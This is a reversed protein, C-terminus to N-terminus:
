PDDPASLKPLSVSPVAGITLLFSLKLPFLPVVETFAAWASKPPALGFEEEKDDEDENLWPFWPPPDSLAFGPCPDFAESARLGDDVEEEEEVEDPDNFLSRSLPASVSGDDGVFVPCSKPGGVHAFRGFRLTAARAMDMLRSKM